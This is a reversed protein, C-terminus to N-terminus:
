WSSVTDCYALHALIPFWSTSNNGLCTHLKRFCATSAALRAPGPLGVQSEAVSICDVAVPFYQTRVFEAM